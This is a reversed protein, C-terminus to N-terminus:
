FIQQMEPRRNNIMSVPSPFRRATQSPDHHSLLDNRDDKSRGQKQGPKSNINGGVAATRLHLEHPLCIGFRGAPGVIRDNRREFARLDPLAPDVVFLLDHGDHLASRCGTIRLRQVPPQAIKCHQFLRFAPTGVGSQFISNTRPERLMMAKVDALADQLEGVNTVKKGIYAYICALFYATSPMTLAADRGVEAAIKNVEEEAKAFMEDSGNFVREFLTKM